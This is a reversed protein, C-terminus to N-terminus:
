LISGCVDKLARGYKKNNCETLLNIWDFSREVGVTAVIASRESAAIAAKSEGGGDRQERRHSDVIPAFSPDEKRCLLDVEFLTVIDSTLFLQESVGRIPVPAGASM